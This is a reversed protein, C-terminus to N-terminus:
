SKRRLGAFVAFASGFLWLAGPVPVPRFNVNDYVMGSDEFNSAVNLFGFQLIQGAQGPDLFVSMDFTGWANGISTMDITVFDTLTFGANPDLVKIFALSTSAGSINGQKADFSFTWTSGEDGAGIIQEQFVNAEIRNGVNHDANNYDNYVSLHQNGQGSGGMGSVIASFAGGGNPAPFAFYNYLFTTGSPDFVNAGVLWGDDGLAAGDAQNLGEFDQSYTALAAYSAPSALLAMTAFLALTAGSRVKNMSM